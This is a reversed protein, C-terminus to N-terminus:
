SQQNKFYLHSLDGEVIIRGGTFLLILNQFAGLLNSTSSWAGELVDKDIRGSVNDDNVFHERKFNLITDKIWDLYATAEFLTRCNLNLMVAECEKATVVERGGLKNSVLNLRNFLTKIALEITQIQKEELPNTSKEYQIIDSSLTNLYLGMLHMLERYTHNKAPEGLSETIENLRTTTFPTEKKDEKKNQIIESQFIEKDSCIFINNDNTPSEQQKKQKKEDGFENQHCVNLTLSRKRKRNSQTEPSPANPPEVFADNLVDEEDEIVLSPSESSESGNDAGGSENMADGATKKNAANAAPRGNTIKDNGSKNM